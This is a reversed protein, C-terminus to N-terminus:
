FDDSGAGGCTGEKQIAFLHMGWPRVTFAYEDQGAPSKPEHLLNVQQIRYGPLHLIGERECGTLDRLGIFIADEGRRCSLLEMKEPIVCGEPAGVPQAACVMAAWSPANAAEETPASRLLFRYRFSGGIWQPFNTGWMNNFLNFYLAAPRDEGFDKRFRYIGPEGIGFLPADPSCVSVSGHETLVTVERELNFLTHNACRQIQTEPDVVGGPKGIRYSVKGQFPFVLTGSEIFPTEQKESLELLIELEEGSEPFAISLAIERADGYDTSSKKTGYRLRLTRGAVEWGLFDPYLTEHRCDPYNERGYDQIGWTTFHYAYSRLFETVDPLGYRDYRYAFVGEKGAKLVVSDTERDWLSCIRGTGIDLILRYKRNEVTLFKGDQGVLLPQASSPAPAPPAPSLLAQIGDLCREAQRARSRQEQWSQELFRYAKESKARLFEEKEYVREPGLWTKVDAGWTHEEFLAVAEYYDDWLTEIQWDPNKGVLLQALYERHLGRARERCTRLLRVEAPYSGVGHIWTDALDGDVVPAGSLDCQALERYFDDMSGCVIEAEPYSERAKEAMRLILEASQPGCNDHTHMLAMWVPYPWGEPPLLGTGYGGKSYMTLVRGGGSGQWFFLDPVEPPTAFENCGLHLFRIGAQELLDPLMGGHGPVDTMKASLPMPKHYREALDRSYRFVEAYEDPAAFDTHSTFPLGHWVIQGERILRDLEPKLEPDCNGCIHWLPWAPMTWVYRLKGLDKTANCTEIVQRLMDSGYGRIVNEALDTFGIDFHTKFVLIIKKVM